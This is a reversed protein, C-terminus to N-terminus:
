LFGVAQVLAHLVVFSCAESCQVAVGVLWGSSYVGVLVAM